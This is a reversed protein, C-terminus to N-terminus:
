FAFRSLVVAALICLLSLGAGLAPGWFWFRLSLVLYAAAIIVAIGQLFPSTAFVPFHLWATFFLGGGFLVVGLSHSLNFGLWAQWFNARPNFALRTGEMAIRVADDTPTFARPKGVDRLTLVGHLTGLVLFITASIALLIQAM